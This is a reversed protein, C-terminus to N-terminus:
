TSRVLVQIKTLVKNWIKLFIYQYEINIFYHKYPKILIKSLYLYNNIFVIKPLKITMKLKIKCKTNLWLM